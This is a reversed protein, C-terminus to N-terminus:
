ASGPIRTLITIPAFTMKTSSKMSPRVAMVVFIRRTLCWTSGIAITEATTAHKQKQQHKQTQCKALASQNFISPISFISHISSISHISLHNLPNFLSFISQVSQYTISRISFISFLNLPNIPSQFYISRISLHNPPNFTSQYSISYIPILKICVLVKM